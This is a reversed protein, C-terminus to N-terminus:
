SRRKMFGAGQIIGVITYNCLELCFCFRHQCSTNSYISVQVSLLKSFDPVMYFRVGDIAGDLMAVRILLIGLVLYPVTATFYIVQLSSVTPRRCTLKGDTTCLHATMEVDTAAATACVLVLKRDVRVFIMQTSAQLKDNLFHMRYAFARLHMTARWAGWERAGRGRAWVAGITGIDWRVKGSLRIGKWTSFFCIAWALLLCLALDWKVTNVQEIGDSIRLVRNRVFFVPIIKKTM